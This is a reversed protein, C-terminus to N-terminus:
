STRNEKFIELCPLRKKRKKKKRYYLINKDLLKGWISVVRESWIHAM